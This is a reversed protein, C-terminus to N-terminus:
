TVKQIINKSLRKKVTIILFCTMTQQNWVSSALPKRIQFRCVKILKPALFTKSVNPQLKNLSILHTFKKTTVIKYQCCFLNLITTKITEWLTIKILLYKGLYIVRVFKNMPMLSFRSIVKQLQFTKATLSAILTM